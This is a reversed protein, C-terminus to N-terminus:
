GPGHLLYVQDQIESKRQGFVCLAVDADTLSDADLSLCCFILM